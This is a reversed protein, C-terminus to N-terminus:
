PSSNADAKIRTPTATPCAPEPDIGGCDLCLTATPVPTGSATDLILKEFSSSSDEASDRWSDDRHKMVYGDPGWSEVFYAGTGMFNGANDQKYVPDTLYNKLYESTFDEPSMGNNVTYPISFHLTYDDPTELDPTLDQDCGVGTRPRSLSEDLDNVSFVSGDSFTVDQRLHVFIDIMDSTPTIIFSDALVPLLNGNSDINFIPDFVYSAALRISQDDLQTPDLRAPPTSEFRFVAEMVDGGPTETAIASTNDSTAAVLVPAPAFQEAAAGCGVVLFAALVVFTGVLLHRRLTNM